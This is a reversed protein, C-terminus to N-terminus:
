DDGFYVQEELFPHMTNGNSDVADAMEIGNALQTAMEGWVSEGMLRTHRYRETCTRLFSEADEITAPVDTPATDVAQSAAPSPPPTDETLDTLPAGNNTTSEADRTNEPGEVDLKAFSQFVDDANFDDRTLPRYPTIRTPSSNKNQKVTDRFIKRRKSAKPPVDHYSSTARTASPPFSTVTKRQQQKLPEFTKHLYSFTKREQQEPPESPEGLYSSSKRKPHSSTRVPEALYSSSPATASSSLSPATKRKLKEPM